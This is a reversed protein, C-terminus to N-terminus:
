EIEVEWVGNAQRVGVKGSDGKGKQIMLSTLHKLGHVKEGGFTEIVGYKVIGEKALKSGEDMALLVIKGDGDEGIIAGWSDVRYAKGRNDPGFTSAFNVGAPVEVPQMVRIAGNPGTYSESDVAVFSTYQSVLDFEKALNKIEEGLQTIGQSDANAMADMKEKIKMRAWVPALARNRPEHDAFFVDVEERLYRQGALGELIIRGEAAETFRGHIMVPQGVFLDPMREPIVDTVPLGNWDIKIDVLAPADIRRFFEDVKKQMRDKPENHFIIKCAGRGHEAMRELLYRNVNSGIGFSFIRAGARSEEIRKFIHSEFGVYGDTLFVVFRVRKPDRPHNLALDIGKQMETGGAGRLKRIFKKAEAVEEQTNPLFTDSYLMTTGAFTAINFVDRPRMADLAKEMFEKSKGLPIGNMSGSTDLIFFLERPVIEEALAELQPEIMLTFFKGEEGAHSLFAFKPADGAVKMNLVFDKNPISDDQSLAVYARTEGDREILVKHSPCEIGELPVGADVSLTLSIDHGSRTGPLVRPPQIRSQDPVRATDPELGGGAKAPESPVAPGGGYRHGVVMPFVYSYSGSDYKLTHFYKIEVNVACGPEINAVSQTFINPREQELLSAVQGRARAEEYIRRAEAKERIVGMITRDGIKMLFGNVAATQPLPFVYVAEIKYDYPNTFIQTVNTAALFGTIEGKVSTHELPFQGVTEGDDRKAFM